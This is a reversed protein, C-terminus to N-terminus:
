RSLAEYCIIPDGGKVACRAQIASAGRQMMEVMAANDSKTSAFNEMTATAILALLFVAITVWIAFWFKGQADM